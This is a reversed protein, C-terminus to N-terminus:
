VELVHSLDLRKWPFNLCICGALNIKKKTINQNKKIWFHQTNLFLDPKTRPISTYRMEIPIFWRPAPSFSNSGEFVLSFGFCLVLRFGPPAVEGFRFPDGGLLLLPLAADDSSGDFCELCLRLACPDISEDFSWSGETRLLRPPIGAGSVSTELWRASPEAGGRFAVDRGLFSFPDDAPPSPETLFDAFPFGSFETSVQLSIIQSVYVFGHFTNKPGGAHSLKNENRKLTNEQGSVLFFNRICSLSEM